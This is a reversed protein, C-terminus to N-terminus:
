ETPAETDAGATTEAEASTDTDAEGADTDAEAGTDTGGAETDAEATTEAEAGADAEAGAGADTDAGAGTDAADDAAEAEAAGASASAGSALQEMSAIITDIGQQGSTRSAVNGDADVFVWFPTGAMGYAVSVTGQEDDRMVPFPWGEDELWKSPPFNGRVSDVSTSVSVIEVGEPFTGGGDVYSTMVSVESQCFGCWHALFLIAKPTGDATIQVEGDDFNTGFAEPIPTGVAADGSESAFPPLPTGVVEVPATQDGGDESGSVSVIIVTLVALLAVGGLVYPILNRGGSTSSM